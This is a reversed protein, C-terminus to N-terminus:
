EDEEEKVDDDPAKYNLKIAVYDVGDGNNVDDDDKRRSIEPLLISLGILDFPTNLEIRGKANRGQPISDKDIRYILLQPTQSMNRGRRYSAFSNDSAAKEPLDSIDEIDSVLDRPSRLVRIDIMDKKANDVRSRNVPNITKGNVSWEGPEADRVEDRGALIVNWKEIKGTNKELWELIHQISKIREDLAVGRYRELYEEVKETPVDKWVMHERINRFAGLSELFERTYRLNSQMVDSDADFLTTQYSMGEFNFDTPVASQMKNNATIRVDLYSPSTKIRPAVEAPSFGKDAYEMLKGRVDENMETLFGYKEYAKQDMWIRPMLEYHQRYGFWRGMQMLTDAQNTRRLFYTSVLGEITLGRSLTNGGIVIFAPAKDCEELRKRDPYVLRVQSSDESDKANSNDVCLHIGDNYNLEGEDSMEIHHVLESDSLELLKRLERKVLKWKPYEQVDGYYDTMVSRFMDPSLESCRENYEAHMSKLFAKPNRDYERKLDYIYNRVTQEILNHVKVKFDTHIMMSVPKMYGQARMASLAMLFWKVAHQMSKPAKFPTREDQYKKIMMSENEPIENVIGNMGPQFDPDGKGFIQRPGIYDEGPELLSIFNKPYLTDDGSENLVNAFPTATYAVYNMAGYGGDNVINRITGNIATREEGNVDKTNISAQDAEDDILLVKMKKQMNRDHKLWHLISRIRRSNKLSVILYRATSGSSLELQSTQMGERVSPRDLYNWQNNGKGSFFIDSEIRRATQRRLNEIVGSLVIFVNFGNDAAMAILASMSATKGSQINGVVLGKHPGTESTTTMRQLIEFSSKEINEVSKESWHNQNILKERYLKWTGFTDTPIEATNNINDGFTLVQTSKEREVQDKILSSYKEFTLDIKMVKMVIDRIEDYMDASDMDNWSYKNNQKCNKIIDLINMKEEEYVTM